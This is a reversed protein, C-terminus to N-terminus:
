QRPVLAITAATPECRRKLLESLQFQYYRQTCAPEGGAGANAVWFRTSAPEFLVSHLNSKMAVPRDMLALASASDLRGHQGRVRSVLEEYRSGASLLVADPVPLPLQEHAQGPEVVEFRNWHAALGVARNDDGDAIVYYYECTRPSDRFVALAEDLTRAEELVRRVLYAMPAGEWHGLGRGGMEGISVHEANMGTVSGIFGAYTVNVFALRDRPQAVLLV